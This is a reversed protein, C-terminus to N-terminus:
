IMNILKFTSLLSIILARTARPKPADNIEIKALNPPPIKVLPASTPASRTPFTSAPIGAEVKGVLDAGVDAGKTFIGGGLRAFISILSAGFGLAVLANVIEREDVEFKLLLFYYVAIALLALGAVLMGTVAGSKFAVSLGEALGKRSAEATRVNAEVSVLMGVYGAIGSLTAGILYGLGVLPNFANSVIVLVVVGVIAITKYQRALYAKAGIQIASAIDQMKSNGASSNLINKGTLYGYIISLLGAGITYILITEINSNM